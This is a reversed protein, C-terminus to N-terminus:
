WGNPPYAGIRGPMTVNVQVPTCQYNLLGLGCSYTPQACGVNVTFVTPDLHLIEDYDCTRPDSTYCSPYEVFQIASASNISGLQYVLRTPNLALFPMINQSVDNFATIALDIQLNCAAGTNILGPSVVTIPISNPFAKFSNELGYYLINAISPDAMIYGQCSVVNLLSLCISLSFLLNRFM